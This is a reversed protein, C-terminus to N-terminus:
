NSFVPQTVIRDQSKLFMFIGVWKHIWFHPHVQVKSRNALSYAPIHSNCLCPGLFHTSNTSAGSKWWLQFLLVTKSYLIHGHRFPKCNLQPEFCSVDINDGFLLYWASFAFGQGLGLVNPMQLTLALPLSADQQFFWPLEIHLSVLPLFLNSNAPISPGHSPSPTWTSSIYPIDSFFSCSILNKCTMQDHIFIGMSVSPGCQGM